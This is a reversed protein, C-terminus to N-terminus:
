DEKILYLTNSDPTIAEYEAQTMPQSVKSLGLKEATLYDTLDVATTGLFEFKSLDDLWIYENYVDNDTGDKPVLYLTMKTGIEPLDNVISLKFQPIAAIAQMVQTQTAYDGIPQKQALGKALSDNTAYDGKDQKFALSAELQKETVYQLGIQVNVGIDGCKPIQLEITQSENEIVKGTVNFPITNSITKLNGNNDVLALTGYCDGFYFKSTDMSTLNVCFSKETIDEFEKTYSQLKFMAKWGTLDMETNLQFTLFSDVDAFITSDGKFIYIM